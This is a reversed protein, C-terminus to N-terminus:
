RVKMIFLLATYQPVTLITGLQSDTTATASGSALSSSPATSGSHNHSGNNDMVSPADLIGTQGGAGFYTNLIGKLYLTYSTNHRQVGAHDDVTIGIPFANQRSWLDLGLITHYHNGDTTIGHTHPPVTHTHANVNHSHAFNTTNSGGTAGIGPASNGTIDAGIPFRGRMDPINGTTLGLSNPITNWARGDMIEWGGGPTSTSGSPRWWTVVSGLPLINPDLMPSTIAGNPIAPGYVAGPAIESAGVAGTQIQAAGVSNAALLAQTVASPAILATTIAGPIISATSLRVGQGPSHDHQDIAVLNHELAVHSFGDDSQDWLTLNMNPSTLM